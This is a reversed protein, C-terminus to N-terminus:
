HQHAFVHFSNSPSKSVATPADPRAFSFSYTKISVMWGRWSAKCMIPHDFPFKPVRHTGAPHSGRFESAQKFSVLYDLLLIFMFLLTIEVPEAASVRSIFPDFNNGGYQVFCAPLVSRSVMAFLLLLTKLIPKLRERLCVPQRM